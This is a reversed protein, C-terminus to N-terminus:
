IMVHGHWYTVTHSEKAGTFNVATYILELMGVLALRGLLQSPQHVAPEAQFMIIILRVTTRMCPLPSLTRM